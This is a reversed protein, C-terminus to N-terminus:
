GTLVPPRFAGPVPVEASAAPCVAPRVVQVRLVGASRPTVVFRASGPTGTTRSQAVGAGRVAVAITGRGGRVRVTVVAQRGAVLLTHGVSVRPCTPKPVPPPRFPGTIPTNVESRNNQGNSEPTSTSVTVVNTATGVTEALVVITVARTAGAALTGFSCTLVTTGSCAPDSVSVLSVQSPLPDVAVVDAAAAPGLNTVTVIYTIQQGVVANTRDATKTVAVDATQPTPASPTTTITTGTNTNTSTSTTTSQGTTAQSTTTAGTTTSTTGTTTTGTTTTSTTTTSTTGTTTTGTTTTSTSTTGTSTTGTTTTGTTPPPQTTCSTTGGHLAIVLRSGYRNTASLTSLSDGTALDIQWFCNPLDITYQYTGADLTKSVNDFRTQPFLQNPGALMEYSAFVVQTGSCGPRVTFTVTATTETHTFSANSISGAGEPCPGTDKSAGLSPTGAAAFAAVAAVSLGILAALRRARAQRHLRAAAYAAVSQRLM